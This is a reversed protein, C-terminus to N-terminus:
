LEFDIDQDFCSRLEKILHSFDFYMRPASTYCYQEDLGIFESLAEKNDKFLDKIYESDFEFEGLDGIPYEFEFQWYTYTAILNQWNFDIYSYLINNDLTNKVYTIFDNHYDKDNLHRSLTDRVKDFDFFDITVSDKVSEIENEIFQEFSIKEM